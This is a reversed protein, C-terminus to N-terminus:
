PAAPFTGAADEEGGWQKGDDAVWTCAPFHSFQGWEAGGSAAEQILRFLIEPYMLLM